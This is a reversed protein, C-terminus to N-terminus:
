DMAGWIIGRHTLYVFWVGAGVMLLAVLVILWLPSSPRNSM